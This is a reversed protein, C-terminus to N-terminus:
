RVGLVGLLLVVAAAGMVGGLAIGHWMGRFFERAEGKTGMLDPLPEPKRLSKFRTTIVTIM